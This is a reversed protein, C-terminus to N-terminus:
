SFFNIKTLLNEYKYLDFPLKRQHEKVFAYKIQNKKKLLYM